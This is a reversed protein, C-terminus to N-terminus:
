RRCNRYMWVVDAKGSEMSPGACDEGEFPNSFMKDDPLDIFVMKDAFKRSIADQTDLWIEQGSQLKYDAMTLGVRKAVHEEMRAMFRQISSLMSVMKDVEGRSGGSAPHFMLISRNMMIRESGHEFIMAAMSACFQTCITHVPGLSAEMADIIMAGQHVLGGPSNIVLYIPEATRGLVAIKRAIENSNEAVPGTLYVTRSEPPTLRQVKAPPAVQDLVPASPAEQVEQEAVPEALPLIGTEELVMQELKLEKYGYTGGVGVALFATGLVVLSKWDRM